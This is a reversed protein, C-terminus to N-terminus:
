CRPPVCLRAFGRQHNRAASAVNVLDSAAIPGFGVVYPKLTRLRQHRAVHRKFDILPKAGIAFGDYLKVELLGAAHRLAHGGAADFRHGHAKKM